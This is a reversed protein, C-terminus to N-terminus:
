ITHMHLDTQYVYMQHTTVNYCTFKCIYRSIKILQLYIFDIQLDYECVYHNALAIVGCKQEFRFVSSLSFFLQTTLNQSLHFRRQLQSVALARTAPARKLQLLLPSNLRCAAPRLPSAPKDVAATSSMLSFFSRLAAPVQAGGRWPFAPREDAASCTSGALEEGGRLFVEPLSPLLEASDCNSSSVDEM